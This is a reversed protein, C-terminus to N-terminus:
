GLSGGEPCSQRGTTKFGNLCFALALAAMLWASNWIESQGGSPIMFGNIENVIIGKDGPRWLEAIFPRL